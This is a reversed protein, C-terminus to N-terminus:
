DPNLIMYVAEAVHNYTKGSPWCESCMKSCNEMCKNGCLWRVLDWEVPGDVSYAEKLLLLIREHKSNFWMIPNVVGDTIFDNTNKIRDEKWEKLIEDNKKIYNEM